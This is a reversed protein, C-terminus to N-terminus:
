DPVDVPSTDSLPDRVLIKGSLVPPYVTIGSVWIWDWRDAGLRLAKSEHENLSLYTIGAPANFIRANLNFRTANAFPVWGTLNFPQGNTQKWELFIAPYICGRYIDPLEILAPKM